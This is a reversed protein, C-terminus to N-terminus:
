RSYVPLIRTAILKRLVSWETITIPKTPTASTMVNISGFLVGSLAILRYSRLTSLDPEVTQKLHELLHKMDKLFADRKSPDCPEASVNESPRKNNQNEEEETTELAAKVIASDSM